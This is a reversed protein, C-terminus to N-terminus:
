PRASRRNAKLQQRLKAQRYSSSQQRFSTTTLLLLAALLLRPKTM